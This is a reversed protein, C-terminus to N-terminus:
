RATKGMTFDGGEMGEDKTEPKGGVRGVERDVQLWLSTKGHLNSQIVGGHVAGPAAFYEKCGSTQRLRAQPAKM